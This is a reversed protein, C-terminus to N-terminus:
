RAKTRGKGDSKKVWGPGKPLSDGGRGASWNGLVDDEGKEEEMAAVVPDSSLTLDVVQTGMDEFRNFGSRASSLKSGKWAKFGKSNRAPVSPPATSSPPNNNKNKHKKNGSDDNSIDNKSNAKASHSPLSRLISTGEEEDSSLHEDKIADRQSTFSTFVTELSPFDSDSDFDSRHSKTVADSKNVSNFTESAKPPQSDPITSNLSDTPPPTGQPLAEESQIASLEPAKSSQSPEDSTSPMIPQNLEKDFDERLAQMAEHDAESSPDAMAQDIKHTYGDQQAPSSLGRITPYIVREEAEEYDVAPPSSSFGDFRPSMPVDDHLQPAVEVSDHDEDIRPGDSDEHGISGNSQISSRWGADKILDHIEKRVQDTAEADTIPKHLDTLSKHSFGVVSTTDRDNELAQLQEEEVAKDAKPTTTLLSGATSPFEAESETAKVLKPEILDAFALEILGDNDEIGDENYGPMEFKSYLREGTEEDYQKPGSPRDRLAMRLSLTGDDILGEIRATRYDSIKPQWNTQASMDLQKFAIITGVACATQELSPCAAVDEPLHPLDGLEDEAPDELSGGNAEETERLLQDNAAQLNDDSIDVDGGRGSVSPTADDGDEFMTKVGYSPRQQRKAYKENTLPEFSAEYYKNNRKRKKNNRSFNTGGAFYGKKQQPDWRQVFPFPPTSLEIGDYCCEVASLEIKEKWSDDDAFPLPEISVNEPDTKQPEPRRPLELDKVLKARLKTEDEPTKPARLGLAGFVLRKSSNKDLRARPKQASSPIGSATQSADAIAPAQPDAAGLPASAEEVLQGSVPETIIGDADQATPVTDILTRESASSGSKEVAARVAKSGGHAAHDASIETPQKGLSVENSDLKDEQDVGGSSIAQLLAQRKREFEANGENGSAADQSVNDQSQSTLGPNSEQLDATSVTSPFVGQGRLRIMKKRDRRRQNRKQTERKGAGPPVAVGVEQSGKNAKGQSHLPASESTKTSGAKNATHHKRPSQEEDFSSSSGSSSPSGSSSSAEQYGHTDDNGSSSVDSSSESSGSSSTDDDDSESESSSDHEPIAASQTVANNRRSGPTANEKDSEDTKDSASGAEDFHESDSDNESGTRPNLRVTAPTALEAEDFRVSKGSGSASASKGSGNSQVTSAPKPNGRQRRKGDMNRIRRKMPASLEPEEAPESNELMELLRNTSKQPYPAGNSARLGLGAPRAQRRRKVRNRHTSNGDATPEPQGDQHRSQSGEEEISDLDNQIDNLEDSLDGEDESALGEDGSYDSHTESEENFDPHVVVQRQAEYEEDEEDDYTLRRRKRPPLRIAPRDSRRLFPRGFAVGDILHKGDTSIQHRGSVKRFRLDLISLPRICVEDDEKLVQSAEQFHLCEFGGVEVAYDELGWEESELPIIDNVQELLQSITATEASSHAPDQGGTTWLIRAAPLGNRQVTLHLRM